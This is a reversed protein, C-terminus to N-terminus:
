ETVLRQEQSQLSIEIGMTAGSSQLWMELKRSSLDMQKECAVDECIFVRRRRELGRRGGHQGNHFTDGDIVWTNKSGGEKGGGGWEGDGIM